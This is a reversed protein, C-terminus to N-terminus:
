DRIGAVFHAVNKSVPDFALYHISPFHTSIFCHKGSLSVAENTWYRFDSVFETSDCDVQVLAHNLDSSIKFKAHSQLQTFYSEQADYTFFARTLFSPKLENAYGKFNSIGVPMEINLYQEYANQPSITKEQSCAIFFFAMLIFLFLLRYRLLSSVIYSQNFRNNMMLSANLVTDNREV